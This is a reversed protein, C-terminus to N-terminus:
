EKRFEPVRAHPDLAVKIPALGTEYSAARLAEEAAELPYVHSIFRGVDIGIAALQVGLELGKDVTHPHSVPNVLTIEKMLLQLWDVQQVLPSPLSVQAVCGTPRVLKFALDKAAAAGATEIVADIAGFQEGIRSALASSDEGQGITITEIAGLTKAFTLRGADRDLGILIVRAGRFAAVLACGLGQPGPGIIAVTNGAEVGAKEVWRLSNALLSCSVLAAETSLGAPVRYVLAEPPVHVHTAYGGWLGPAERMSITGYGRGGPNNECLYYQGDRCCRCDNCPWRAEVAIRDGVALNRATRAREGIAAVTGIIEDGFIIPVRENFWPLEGKFMHLESGDVGCLAVEILLDDPGPQPLPVDKLVFRETGEFVVARATADSM